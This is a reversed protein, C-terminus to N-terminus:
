GGWMSKFDRVASDAADQHTERYEDPFFGRMAKLFEHDEPSLVRGGKSDYCLRWVRDRIEDFSVPKEMRRRRGM